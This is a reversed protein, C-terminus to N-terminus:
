PAILKLSITQASGSGGAVKITLTSSSGSSPIKGAPYTIKFTLYGSTTGVSIAKFANTLDAAAAAKVYIGNTGAALNQLDTSDYGLAVCNIPILKAVANNKTMTLTTSGSDNDGGDSLVLLARQYSAAPMNTDLWSTSEYLSQWLPTIGDNKTTDIGAKLLTPDSTFTQIIKTKTFPSTITDDGFSLVALKSASNLGLILDVFLKSADKRIYNPDSSAM